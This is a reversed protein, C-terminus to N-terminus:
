FQEELSEFQNNLEEDELDDDSNPVILSREDSSHESEDTSIRPVERSNAAFIIQPQISPLPTLQTPSSLQDTIPTPLPIPKVFVGIPSIEDASPSSEISPYRLHSPPSIKNNWLKSVSGLFSWRSSAQPQNIIIDDSFSVQRRPSLSPLSSESKSVPDLRLLENSSEVLKKRKVSLNTKWEVTARTSSTGSLIKALKDLNDPNSM